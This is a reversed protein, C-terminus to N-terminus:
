AFRARGIQLTFNLLFFNLFYHIKLIPACWSVQTHCVFSFFSLFFFEGINPHFIKTECLVKPATHPYEPPFTFPFVFSAGADCIAACKLFIIAQPPFQQFNLPFSFEHSSFCFLFFILLVSEFVVVVKTCDRMLSLPFTSICSTM